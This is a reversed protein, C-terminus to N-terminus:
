FSQFYTCHWHLYICKMDDVIMETYEICYMQTINILTKMCDIQPEYIDNLIHEHHKMTKLTGRINFFFRLM